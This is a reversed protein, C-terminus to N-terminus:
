RVTRLVLNKSTTVGKITVSVRVRCPGSAKGIVAGAKLACFIPSRKGLIKVSFKAGAPMKLGAFRAIDKAIATKTRSVKPQTWVNRSAVSAAGRGVLNTAVVSFTYKKLDGLKGVICSTQTADVTTCSKGGPSATVTYTLVEQGGNNLPATWSVKASRRGGVVTVETPADPGSGLGTLPTAVAAGANGQGPTAAPNGGSPEPTVVVNGTNGADFEPTAPTTGGAVRGPVLLEAFNPPLQPLKISALPTATLVNSAVSSGVANFAKVTFEYSRGNVLGTVLCAFVVGPECVALNGVYARYLTLLDEAGTSEHRWSLAVFGDGPAAYSLTPATPAKFTDHIRILGRARTSSPASTVFIQGADSIAVATGLQDTEGGKNGYELKHTVTNILGWAGVSRDSTSAGLLLKSGDGSLDLSIGISGPTGTTSPSQSYSKTFSYQGTATDLTQILAAGVNGAFGPAGVAMKTADASIAVSWGFYSKTDRIADNTPGDAIAARFYFSEGVAGNELVHHTARGDDQRITDYYPSGVILRSADGSLAVSYGFSANAQPAIDTVRTRKVGATLTSSTYDIVEVAGANAMAIRGTDTTKADARPAGVVLRRTFRSQAWAVSTGFAQDRDSLFNSPLLLDEYDYEDTSSARKLVYVRGHGQYGPAGVALRTGMDSLAVASGFSENAAPIQAEVIQLFNWRTEEAVRQYVRVLGANQLGRVTASPVGVAMLRGDPSIAISQGFRGRYEDDSNTGDITQRPLMPQCATVAVLGILTVMARFARHRVRNRTSEATM